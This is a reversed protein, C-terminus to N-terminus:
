VLSLRLVTPSEVITCGSGNEGVVEFDDATVRESVPEGVGNSFVLVYAGRSNLM